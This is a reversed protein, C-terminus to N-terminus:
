RKLKPYVYAALALSVAAALTWRLSIYSSGINASMYAMLTVAAMTTSLHGGRLVERPGSPTVFYQLMLQITQAFLAVGPVAVVGYMPVLVINGLIAAFASTLSISTITWVQREQFHMTLYISQSFQAVSAALLIPVLRSADRYISPAILDILEPMTLSGIISLAAVSNVLYPTHKSIEAFSKDRYRRLMWPVWTTNIATWFLTLGSALATALGYIGLSSKSSYLEIAFRDFHQLFGQAIYHPILPIGMSLGYAWYRRCGPAMARRLNLLLLALGAITIPLSAGIVRVEVAHGSFVGEKLVLVTGAVGFVSTSISVLTVAKYRFHFRESARWLMYAANALIAVAMFVLLNLRIGTFNGFVLIGGWLCLWTALSCLVVLALTSAMLHRQSEEFKLLASNFVGSYLSLTAFINLIALWSNYLTVEGYESPTLLRTFIPTALLLLGSNLYISAGFWITAVKANQDPASPRTMSM